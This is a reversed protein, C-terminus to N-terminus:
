LSISYNDGAKNAAAFMKELNSRSLGVVNLNLSDARRIIEGQLGRAGGRTEALIRLLLAILLLHSPLPPSDKGEFAALMSNVAPYKKAANERLMEFAKRWTNAVADLTTSDKGKARLQALAEDASRIEDQYQHGLFAALISNDYEQQNALATELESIKKQAAELQQEISGTGSKKAAM